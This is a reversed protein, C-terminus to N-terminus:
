VVPPKKGKNLLALVSSERYFNAMGRKECVLKGRSVYNYLTREGVRLMFMTTQTDLLPDRAAAKKAEERQLKWEDLLKQLLSEIRNLSNM